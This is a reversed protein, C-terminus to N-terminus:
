RVVADLISMIRMGDLYYLEIADISTNPNGGHAFQNRAVSLSKLSSMMRAKSSDRSVLAKFSNVWTDDFDGLLRCINEYSPNMSNRRVKNEIFYDVQSHTTVCFDAIITKFAIELTGSAKILSYRTLYPTTTHFPGQRHILAKLDTIEQQVDLLLNKITTNNMIWGTYTDLRLHLEGM